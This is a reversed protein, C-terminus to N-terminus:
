NCLWKVGRGDEFIIDRWNPLHFSTSVPGEPRLDFFSPTTRSYMWKWGKWGLFPQNQYWKNIMQSKSTRVHTNTISFVTLSSTPSYSHDKHHIITKAYNYVTGSCFLFSWSETYINLAKKTFLRKKTSM